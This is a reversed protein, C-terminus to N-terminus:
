KAVTDSVTGITNIMSVFRVKEYEESVWIHKTIKFIEGEIELFYVSKTTEDDKVTAQQLLKGTFLDDELQEVVEQNPYEAALEEKTRNFTEELDSKNIGEITMTSTPIEVTTIVDKGDNAQDGEVTNPLYIYYDSQGFWLEANAKEVSHGFNYELEIASALKPASGGQVQEGEEGVSMGGNTQEGNKPNNDITTGCGVLMSSLAGLILFQKLFSMM